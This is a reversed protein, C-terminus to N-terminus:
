LNPKEMCIRMRHAITCTKRVLNLFNSNKVEPPHVHDNQGNKITPRLGMFIEGFIKRSEGGDYPESKVNQHGQYLTVGPGSIPERAFLGSTPYIKLNFYRLFSHDYSLESSLNPKEMCIRMRHAITCTKRVLNLFISNKVEPMYIALQTM